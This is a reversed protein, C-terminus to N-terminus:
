KLNEAAGLQECWSQPTTTAPAPVMAHLLAEAAQTMLAEIQNDDWQQAASSYGAPVCVGCAQGHAHWPVGSAMARWGRAVGANNM